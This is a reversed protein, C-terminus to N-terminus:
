AASKRYTKYTSSRKKRQHRMTGKRRRTRRGGRGFSSSGFCSPNPVRGFRSLHSKPKPQSPKLRISPQQELRALRRYRSELDTITTNIEMNDYMGSEERVQELRARADAVAADRSAIIYSPSDHPTDARRASAIEADAFAEFITRVPRWVEENEGYKFQTRCEALRGRVDFENSGISLVALQKSLSPREPKCIGFHRNRSM